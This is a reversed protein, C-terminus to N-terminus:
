IGLAIKAIDLKIKMQVQSFKTDLKKRTEESREQGKQLDRYSKDPNKQNPKSNWVNESHYRGSPKGGEYTIASFNQPDGLASLLTPISYVKGRSVLLVNNSYLSGDGALFDMFNLAVAYDVYSKWMASLGTSKKSQKGAAINYWMYPQFTGSDKQSALELLKKLTTEHVKIKPNANKIRNQVNSTKVSIGFTLLVKDKSFFLTVDNKNFTSSNAKEAANVMTLFEPDLETKINVSLESSGTVAAFPPTISKLNQAMEGEEYLLSNAAAAVIIEQLRGGVNSLTDGIKGAIESIIKGKEVPSYGTVPGQLVKLGVIRQSLRVYDKALAIEDADLNDDPDVWHMNKSLIDQVLTRAAAEGSTKFNNNEELLKLAYARAKPYNTTLIKDLELLIDNTNGIIDGLETILEKAKALGIEIKDKKASASILGLQHFSLGSSTAINASTFSERSNMKGIAEELPKGLINGEKMDNYVELMKDAAEPNAKRLDSQRKNFKKSMQSYAKEKQANFSQIAINSDDFWFHIYTDAANM